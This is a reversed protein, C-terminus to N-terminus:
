VIRVSDLGDAPTASCCVSKMVRPEEMPWPCGRHLIAREDWLLVDGVQWDHTYVYHPQTCFEIARDILAQGDDIGMGEITFSHSAIYLADEGTVPNTWVSRWPRDPWQSIQRWNALEPSIRARSHSFRHWIIADTLPHKLEQPMDAWAARTSAFETEGGTSPVVAAMLVNVLAPVPLFTSDTHWLQNARLNLAKLDNPDLVGDETKNSLNSVEFALDRGAAIAPRNELPGFLKALRTHDQESLSQARFLLASHTEFAARIDPYLHDATVQRLDVGDVIAGFRPHLPTIDLPM